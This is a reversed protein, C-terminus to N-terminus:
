VINLECKTERLPYFERRNIRTIRTIKLAAIQTHSLGNVSVLCNTQKGVKCRQHNLSFYNKLIASKVLNLLPRIKKSKSPTLLVLCEFVM